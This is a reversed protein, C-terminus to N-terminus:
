RELTELAELVQAAPTLKGLGRRITITGPPGGSSKGTYGGLEAIWLTAQSITPMADPITETRKKIRRKLVILARIEHSTLEVSAPQDPQGRSLYKLREIRIAVAALITAWTQVAESTRLQTQEVQCAGSKWTKHFEEIRWRQAYGFIVETAEALTTVSANTLLHWDIPKEGAPCTGEECAWVATVELQKERRGRKDRLRLTVRTWRVVMHATRASRKPGGRVDLSYEGGPAQLALWPRLYQRDRGTSTILRNWSGRVTFLQNTEALKLLISANDAERDLQFWLKADTGITAKNTDDIAKLWFRTEKEEVKRKSNRKRKAKATQKRAQTRTWWVQSLLGLPVGEPTLALGSIVKLGRGGRCLAGLSGFDKSAARDVLTISSGDIPVFVFSESTARRMATQQLAKLVATSNVKHSELLDYAGQRESDKAFVDSIKGSPSEAARTAMLVLRDVRRRDGLEADGFCETAWIGCETTPIRM